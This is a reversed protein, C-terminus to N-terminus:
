FRDIDSVLQNPFLVSKAIQIDQVSIGTLDAVTIQEESQRQWQSNSIIDGLEVLDEETVIGAQYPHYTEGHDLCQSKSDVVRIDALRFIEPDLEQKGPADAGVATIHTGPQVEKANILPKQASTTTVILNCHKCLEAASQAPFVQFGEATM